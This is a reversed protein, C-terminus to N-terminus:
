LLDKTQLATILNTTSTFHHGDIGMEQAAYINAIKDDVFYGDAAACDARLLALEFMKRDPKSVGVECSVVMHRFRKLELLTSRLSGWYYRDVNSILVLQCQKSLVELVDLMGPMPKSYPELWLRHFDEVGLTLGLRQVLDAHLEELSLEGRILVEKSVVDVLESAAKEPSSCYGAIRQTVLNDDFSILVGFLDFFITKNHKTTLM